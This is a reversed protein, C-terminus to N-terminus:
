SVKQLSGAAMRWVEADFAKIDDADHTAIIFPIREENLLACVENRMEDRLEPNLASFPEDLLLVKPESALARALAVRQRQGGSIQCPYHKALQTIGMKDLWFEAMVSATARSPRLWSKNIGVAINQAVTLHPFLAYDQFLYSVKRKQISLSRPPSDSFLTKDNIIIRGQDPKIFGSISKLFLSKGSGSEGIIAVSKAHSKLSANLLFGVQNDLVFNKYISVDFM